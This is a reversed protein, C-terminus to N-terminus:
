SHSPQSHFFLYTTSFHSFFFSSFGHCLLSSLYNINQIGLSFPQLLLNIRPNLCIQSITKRNSYNWVRSDVNRYFTIWLFKFILICSCSIQFRARVNCTVLVLWNPFCINHKNKIGFLHLLNMTVWIRSQQGDTIVTRYRTPFRRYHVHCWNQLSGVQPVHVQRIEWVPIQPWSSTLHHFNIM